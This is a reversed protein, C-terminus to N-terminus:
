YRQQYSPMNYRHTTPQYPYYAGRHETRMGCGCRPMQRPRCGCCHCCRCYCAMRQDYMPYYYHMARDMAEDVQLPERMYDDLTDPMHHTDKVPPVAHKKPMKPKDLIPRVPYAEKPIRPEIKKPKVRDDAVDKGIPREIPRADLVPKRDVKKERTPIRMEKSPQVAEKKVPQEVRESKIPQVREEKREAKIPEIREAKKDTKIPEVREAKIPEVRKAKDSSRVQKSEGPIKIKMGPMIMDPSSLQSNLKVLEEFDVGYHKAIEFLTDGRQVIHIRM